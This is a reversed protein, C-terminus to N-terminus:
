VDADLVNKNQGDVDLTNQFDADLPHRVLYRFEVMPKGHSLRPHGNKIKGIVARNSQGRHARDEKRPRDVPLKRLESATEAHNAIIEPM